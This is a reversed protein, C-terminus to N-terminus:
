YTIQFTSFEGTYEKWELTLAEVYAGQPGKKCWEIFKNLNEEEGEAMIEVRGDRLNKVWGKIDLENAKKMTNYRFFVGQVIGTVIINVRRLM